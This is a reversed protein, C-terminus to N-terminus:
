SNMKIVLIAKIKPKKWPKENKSELTILKRKIQISKKKSNQFTTKKLMNLFKDVTKKEKQVPEQVPNKSRNKQVPSKRINKM